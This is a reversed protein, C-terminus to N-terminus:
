LQYLKEMIPQYTAVRAQSNSVSIQWTLILYRDVNLSTLNVGALGNNASDSKPLGTSDETHTILNLNVLGIPSNPTFIVNMDYVRSIPGANTNPNTIIPGTLLLTSGAVVPTTNWRIRPTYTVLTTNPNRIHGWCRIRVAAIGPGATPPSSTVLTNAPILIAAHVTETTSVGTDTDLARQVEYQATGGGGGAPAAFSADGDTGSNKTLVEGTAGGTPVTYRTLFSADGAAGSNKVLIDNLSGGVPLGILTSKARVGAATTELRGAPDINVDATVNELDSVDVTISDSM